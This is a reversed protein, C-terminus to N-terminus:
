INKSGTWEKRQFEPRFTFKFQKFKKFKKKLLFTYIDYMYVRFELKWGLFIEKMFHNLCSEIKYLFKNYYYSAQIKLSLM